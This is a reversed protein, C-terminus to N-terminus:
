SLSFIMREKSCKKDGCGKGSLNEYYRKSCSGSIHYGESIDTLIEYKPEVIKM